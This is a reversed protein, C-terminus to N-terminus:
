TPLCTGHLTRQGPLPRPVKTVKAARKPQGAYESPVFSSAPYSVHVYPRKGLHQIGKENGGQIKGAFKLQQPMCDACEFLGQFM